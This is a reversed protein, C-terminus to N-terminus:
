DWATEQPSARLADRYVTETRHAAQTVDFRRATQAARAGIANRLEPARLLLSLADALAVRDGAPVLLGENGNHIVEPM